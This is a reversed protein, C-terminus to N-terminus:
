EEESNPDFDDAWDWKFDTLKGYGTADTIQHTDPSFNEALIKNVYNKAETATDFRDSFSRGGLWPYDPHRNNSDWPRKWVNEKSDWVYNDTECVNAYFHQGVNWYKQVSVRLPRKGGDSRPYYMVYPLAIDKWHGGSVLTIEDGYNHKYDIARKKPKICGQKDLGNNM